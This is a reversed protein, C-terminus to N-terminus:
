QYNLKDLIDMSQQFIEPIAKSKKDSDVGKTKVVKRMAKYAEIMLSEEVTAVIKM